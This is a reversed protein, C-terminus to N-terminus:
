VTPLSRMWAAVERRFLEPREAFPFHGCEPLLRLESGPIGQYLREGGERPPTIWDSEGTVILTPVAVEHLRGTLDFDALCRANCHNWAAASYIVERYIREIVASQQDHFYLPMIRQWLDELDRDSAVEESLIRGIVALQEPKGRAWANAAVAAPYDLAPAGACLIVGLL